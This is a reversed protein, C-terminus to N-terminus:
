SFAQILLTVLFYYDNFFLRDGHFRSRSKQKRNKEERTGKNGQERTGQGQLMKWFGSGMRVLDCFGRWLRAGSNTPYFVWCSSTVFHHYHYYISHVFHVAHVHHSQPTIHHHASQPTIHHKTPSTTKHIEHPVPNQPNQRVQYSFRFFSFSTCIYAVFFTQM